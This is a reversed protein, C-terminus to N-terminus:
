PGKKQLCFALFGIGFANLVLSSIPDKRTSSIFFFQLPKLIFILGVFYTVKLECLIYVAIFEM